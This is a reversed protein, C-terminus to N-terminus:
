YAAAGDVAVIELELGERGPTQRKPGSGKWYVHWGEKGADKWAEWQGSFGEYGLRGLVAAKGHEDGTASNDVMVEDGEAASPQYVSFADKLCDKSAPCASPPGAVWKGTKTPNSFLIEGLSATRTAMTVLTAVYPTKGHDDGSSPLKLAYTAQDPVKVPLV